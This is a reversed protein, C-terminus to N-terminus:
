LDGERPRLAERLAQKAHHIRSMVTGVPCGLAQAIERYSMGGWVQLAIVARHVPSLKLLSRDLRQHEERSAAQDLPGPEACVMEEPAVHEASLRRSERGRHRLAIHIAIRILWTAFRSRGEFSRLSSFARLRAEQAIDEADTDNGTMQMAVARLVHDHPHLLATFAEWDGDRARRLLDREDTTTTM